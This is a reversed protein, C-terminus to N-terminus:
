IFDGNFYNSEASVLVTVLVNIKLFKLKKFPGVSTNQANKRDQNYCDNTRDRLHATISIWESHSRCRIKFRRSIQKESV